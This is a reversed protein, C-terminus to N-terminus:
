AEGAATRRIIPIGTKQCEERTSAEPPPGIERVKLQFPFQRYEGTVARYFWVNDVLKSGPYPIGMCLVERDPYRGLKSKSVRRLVTM